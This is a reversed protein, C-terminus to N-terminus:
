TAALPLTHRQIRICTPSGGSQHLLTAPISAARRGSTMVPKRIGFGSFILRPNTSSPMEGVPLLAVLVARGDAAAGETSHGALRAPWLRTLGTRTCGLCRGCSPATLASRAGPTIVSPGRVITRRLDALHVATLTDMRNQRGSGHAAGDVVHCRANRLWGGQFDVYGRSARICARDAGRAPRRRPHGLRPSGCTCATHAFSPGSYHRTLTINIARAQQAPQRDQSAPCIRQQHHTSAPTSPRANTRPM